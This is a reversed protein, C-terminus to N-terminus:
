RTGAGPERPPTRETNPAAPPPQSGTGLRWRRVATRALRAAVLLVLIVAAGTFPRDRTFTLPDVRGPDHGEGLAALDDGAQDLPATRDCLSTTLRDADLDAYVLHHRARDFPYGCAPEQAHTYVTLRPRLPGDWVQDVHLTVAVSAPAGDRESRTATRQSVVRGTFVADAQERAEAVSSAEPCSCAVAPAAPVVVLLATVAAM